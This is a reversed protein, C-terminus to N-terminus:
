PQKLGTEQDKRDRDRDAHEVPKVEDGQWSLDQECVNMGARQAPASYAHECDGETPKALLAGEREVRKRGQGPAQQGRDDMRNRPPMRIVIPARSLMWARSPAKMGASSIATMM